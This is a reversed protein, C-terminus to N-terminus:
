DIASENIEGAWGRATEDYDVTEPRCGTGSSGGTM